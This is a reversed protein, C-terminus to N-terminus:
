ISTLRVTRLVLFNINSLLLLKPSSHKKAFQYKFNQQSKRSFNPCQTCYLTGVSCGKKHRALNLKTTQTGCNGCTDKENRNLSPM